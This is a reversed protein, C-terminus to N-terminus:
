RDRDEQPEVQYGGTLRGILPLLRTVTWWAMYILLSVVALLAFGWDSLAAVWGWFDEMSMVGGFALVGGLVIMGGFGALISEMALVWIREHRDLMDFRVMEIQWGLVDFRTDALQDDDHDSTSNSM